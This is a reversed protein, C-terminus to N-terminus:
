QVALLGRMCPSSVNIKNPFDCRNCSAAAEDHDSDLLPVCDDPSQDDGVSEKRDSDTNNGSERENGHCECQCEEPNVYNYQVNALDMPSDKQPLTTIRKAPKRKEPISDFDIWESASGKREGCSVIGASGMSNSPSCVTQGGIGQEAAFEFWSKGSSNSIRRPSKSRQSGCADRIEKRPLSIRLKEGRVPPEFTDDTLAVTGCYEELFSPNLPTTSRPRDVPCTRVDMLVRDRVPIITVGLAREEPLTTPIYPLDDDYSDQAVLGTSEEEINGIPRPLRHKSDFDSEHDSESSVAVEERKSGRPSPSTKSLREPKEPPTAKQPMVPKRDVDSEASIDIEETVTMRADGILSNKREIDIRKQTEMIEEINEIYMSHRNVNVAASELPVRCKDRSESGSSDEKNRMKVAIPAAEAEVRKKEDREVPPSELNCSVQESLQSSLSETKSLSLQTAFIQEESGSGIKTSFLIRKREKTMARLAPATAGNAVIEEQSPQKLVAAVVTSQQELEPTPTIAATVFSSPIRPEINVEAVVQKQAARPKCNTDTSALSPAQSSIVTDQSEQSSNRQVATSWNSTDATVETETREDSPTRLPIRISGDPLEIRYSKKMQPKATSTVPASSPRGGRESRVIAVANPKVKATILSQTSIAPASPAPNPKAEIQVAFSAGNEKEDPPTHLPIHIATGDDYYRLRPKDSAIKQHHINNDRKPATATIKQRSQHTETHSVDSSMMEPDVPSSSKSSRKPKFIALVSRQKSPTSNTSLGGGAGSSRDSERSKSRSRDRPSDLLISIASKKRQGGATPSEPSAVVDKTKFLSCFSSKRSVSVTAPSPSRSGSARLVSHRSPKPSVNPTLHESSQKAPTATASASYSDAQVLQSFHPAAKKATDRGLSLTAPKKAGEAEDVVRENAAIGCDDYLHDPKLKIRIYQTGESTVGVITRDNKKLVGTNAKKAAITRSTSSPGSTPTKKITVKESATASADRVSGNTVHKAPPENRVKKPTSTDIQIGEAFIAKTVDHRRSLIVQELEEATISAVTNGSVTDSSNIPKPGCFSTELIMKHPSPSRSVGSVASLRSVASGQSGVSSIRSTRGSICLLAAVESSASDKRQNQQLCAQQQEDFRLLAPSRRTQKSISDFNVRANKNSNWLLTSISVPQADTEMKSRASKDITDVLFLEETSSRLDTAGDEVFGLDSSTTTAEQLTGTGVQDFVNEPSSDRSDEHQSSSSARSIDIRPTQQVRLGIKMPGAPVNSKIISSTGVNEMSCRKNPSEQEVIDSLQSDQKNLEMQLAVSFFVDM